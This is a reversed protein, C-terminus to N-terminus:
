RGLEKYGSILCGSLPNRMAGSLSIFGNHPSSKGAPLSNPNLIAKM